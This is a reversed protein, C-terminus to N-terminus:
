KSKFTQDISKVVYETAAAGAMSSLIFEGALVFGKRLLSMDNPSTHKVVNSVIVSVSTSTVMKIVMMGIGTLM